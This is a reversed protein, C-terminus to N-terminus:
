HSVDDKVTLSFMDPSIQPETMPQIEGELHETGSHFADRPSRSLEVFTEHGERWGEIQTIADVVAMLQEDNLNRLRTNLSLGTVRHLQRKYRATNNESPPAYRNIAASITLNNYAPTRLLEAVAMRGTAVDPFVAFRGGRGIAGNNRAFEGYVINGPNNNRWARTGGTRQIRDGNSMVIVVDKPADEGDHAAVPTPGFVNPISIDPMTIKNNAYLNDYRVQNSDDRDKDSTQAQVSMAGGFFM